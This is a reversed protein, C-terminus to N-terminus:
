SQEKRQFRARLFAGLLAGPPFTLFLAIRYWLPARGALEVFSIVGMMACFGCFAVAHLMPSGRGIWGAVFGGFASAAFGCGIDFLMYTLGPTSGDPPPFLLGALRELLVVPVAVALYGVFVALGLRAWGAEAWQWRVLSPISGLV